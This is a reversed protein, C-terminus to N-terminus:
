LPFLLEPLAAAGRALSSSYPGVHSIAFFASFMGLFATGM